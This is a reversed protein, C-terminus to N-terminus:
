IHIIDNFLKDDPSISMLLFCISVLTFRNLFSRPLGKRAGGQNIPNQCAFIRRERHPPTSFTKGLESVYIEGRHDLCANLGELVSQSALNLEDLMIWDGVKLARLLPGDRWEFQGGRGGELPFDAGFM